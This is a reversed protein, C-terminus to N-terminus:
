TVGYRRESGVIRCFLLHGQLNSVLGNDLDVTQFEYGVGSM